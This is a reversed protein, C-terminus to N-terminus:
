KIKTLTGTADEGSFIVTIVNKSTVTATMEHFDNNLTAITGKYTYAFEVKYEHNNNEVMTATKDAAFTLEINVGDVTGSWTGLFPNSGGCGTMSFGIVAVLAIIGFLRIMDKMRVMILFEKITKVDGCVFILVRM